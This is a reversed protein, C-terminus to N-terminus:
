YRRGHIIQEFESIMSERKEPNDIPIDFKNCISEYNDNLYKWLFDPILFPYALASFSGRSYCLIDKSVLASAKSHIGPIIITQQNKLLCYLIISWEENSLSDLRNIVTREYKKRDLWYIVKPWMQVIWFIFSGLCLYGIYPKWWTEQISIGLKSLLSSPAFLLFATILFVGFLFRPRLQIVKIWDIM